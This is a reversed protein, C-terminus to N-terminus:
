WVNNPFRSTDTWNSPTSHIALFRQSVSAEQEFPPLFGESAPFAPHSALPPTMPIPNISAPPPANYFQEWQKTRESEDGRRPQSSPLEEWHSSSFQSWNTSPTALNQRSLRRSHAIANSPTHPSYTDWQYNTGPASSTQGTSSFGVRPTVPAYARSLSANHTHGPTYHAANASQPTSPITVPRMSPAPALPADDFHRASEAKPTATKSFTPERTLGPRKPTQQIAASPALQARVPSTPSPYNVPGALVAQEEADKAPSAAATVCASCSWTEPIEEEDVGVCALHSWSRCDDCQIM